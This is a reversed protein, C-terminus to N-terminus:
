LSVCSSHLKNYRSPKRHAPLHCIFTMPWTVRFTNATNVQNLAANLGSINIFAAGMYAGCENPILGAVSLPIFLFKKWINFVNSYPVGGRYCNRKKKRNNNAEKRKTKASQHHCCYLVFENLSIKTIHRM